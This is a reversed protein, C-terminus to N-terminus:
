PRRTTHAADSRLMRAIAAIHEPTTGCCGGVVRTGLAIYARVHEAMAEPTVDWSGQGHADAKPLGANAQAMLPLESVGAMAQMAALVAEPGEGCNAGVVDAGAEKARRAADQPRLGMMTRGRANFAFTCFVPLGTEAKAARIAACAEEIDHQTEILIIDAGARALVACQAAYAAEAEAVALDGVPQMLQGTPGVSAGVWVDEGAAARTAEIGLRNLEDHRDLLGADKLRYRNGGFTNATVIQSGAAIYAEHVSRVADPREANWAEPITGPPLGRAQLMTGFAGDCLVIEGRALVEMVHERV